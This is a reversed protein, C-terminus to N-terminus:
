KNKPNESKGDTSGLGGDRVATVSDNYTIGFPMLIGQAFAAGVDFSVREANPWDNVVKAWIHGENSSHYYDSDIVGATNAFRIGYKFGIGSRPFMMLVWGSNMECRIGTPFRFIEEQALEIKFPLFFDYGASGMTAREPLKISDYWSRVLLKIENQEAENKYQFNNGWFCDVCDSYFQEFSVKEFRAVRDM